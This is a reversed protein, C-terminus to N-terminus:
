YGPYPSPNTGTTTTTDTTSTTSTTTSAAGAPHVVHWKFRQGGFSDVFNDGSVKGRKDLTFTYLPKGRYTVQKRGDPRKTVSLKPKLSGSKPQGAITLPKWFSVCAGTCRIKKATEQDNFYLARGKSDVLVMGAGGLRKASVTAGNKSTMQGSNTAGIAIALGSVLVAAGVVGIILLRKM